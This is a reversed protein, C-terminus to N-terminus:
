ESIYFLNAFRHVDFQSGFSLDFGQQLKAFNLDEIYESLLKYFADKEDIDGLLEVRADYGYDKMVRLITYLNNAQDSCHYINYFLLEGGHMVLIDMLYNKRFNIAVIIKDSEKSFKAYTKILPIGQHYFNIEPFKYVFFNTVNSSIAFLLYTKIESIYNFQIEEGENIENGSQFYLKLNDKDFFEEPVLIFKDSPYIFDVEKYHKQLYPDSKIYKDVVELFNTENVKEDFNKSILAVFKQRIHDVISYALHNYDIELSLSYATIKSLTFTKDLLQLNEM